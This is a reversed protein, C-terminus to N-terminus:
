AVERLALALLTQNIHMGNLQEGYTDFGVSAASIRQLERGLKAHAQWKEAELSRLICNFTLVFDAAWGAELDRVDRALAGVMDEHSALQLVMGQEIACYFLISGDAEIRQISRVYADGSVSVLVPALLADEARLQDRTKGLARALAEAAMMGDLEYVRRESVDVRTVALAVDTRLFHQHKIIRYANPAHALILVAANSAAKTGELVRTKEFALDDGASGGLVPIGDLADALAAIYTEEKMSLGDVLTLAVYDRPDFAERDIGHKRFLDLVAGNICQSDSLEEILATQWRISPSELGAIVISGTSRDGDIQEGTTSCGAIAVDPFRESLANGAVQLDQRTSAFVLLLSPRPASWTEVIEWVARRADSQFSRGRHVRMLGFFPLFHRAM